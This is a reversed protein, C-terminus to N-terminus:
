RKNSGCSTKVGTKRNGVELGVLLHLFDPYNGMVQQPNQFAGSTDRNFGFTAVRSRMNFHAARICWLGWYAPNAIAMEIAPSKVGMAGNGWGGPRHTVNMKDMEAALVIGM